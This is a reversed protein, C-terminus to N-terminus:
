ATSAVILNSHNRLAEIREEPVTGSRDGGCWAENTEAVTALRARDTPWWTTGYSGAGGRRAFWWVLAVSVVTTIALAQGIGSLTV